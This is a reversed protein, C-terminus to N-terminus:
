QPVHTVWGDMKQEGPALARRMGQEALSRTSDYFTLDPVEGMLAAAARYHGVAKERRGRADACAGKLMAAQVHAERSAARDVHTDLVSTAEAFRSAAILSHAWGISIRSLDLNGPPDAFIQAWIQSAREADDGLQHAAQAARVRAV